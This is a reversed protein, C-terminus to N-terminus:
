RSHNYGSNQIALLLEEGGSKAICGDEVVHVIDPHLNRVWHTSHTVVLFATRQEGRLREVTAAVWKLADVDLGSDMEDLLVYKPCLFLMQLLEMRKKEGGSFGQNLSRQTFNHDLHIQDLVSYLQGYYDTASFPTNTDRHSQLATRVFNAVSIGELEPPTQFALFLGRRSREDPSMTAISHGDLSVDGGTIAYDKHGAIAKVLSSKGAGNSGMLVHLKGPLVRISIDHLIERDGVRVDVNQIVLGDNEMM